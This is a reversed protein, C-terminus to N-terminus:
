DGLLGGADPVVTNVAGLAAAAPTLRDVAHAADAKHPMTVNLGGLGLARVAGVAGAGGGAPVEFALYVWDLGLAEYGANHLAPSLSHAIPSGIVGALRTRGSIVDTRPTIQM